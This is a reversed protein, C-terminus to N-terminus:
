EVVALIVPIARGQRDIIPLFEKKIAKTAPYTRTGFGAATIVAKTVKNSTM